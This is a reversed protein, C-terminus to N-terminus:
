SSRQSFLCWLTAFESEIVAQYLENVEDQLDEPVHRRASFSELYLIRGFVQGLEELEQRTGGCQLKRREYASLQDRLFLRPYLRIARMITTDDAYLMEETAALNRQAGELFAARATREDLRITRTGEEKHMM